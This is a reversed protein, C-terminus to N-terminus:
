RAMRGIKVYLNLQQIAFAQGNINSSVGIAMYQGSGAVPFEVERLSQGGSWQDIGWQMVNWESQGNAGLSTTLSNFQPDFDFGWSISVDSTSSVWLFCTVSKFLKLYNAIDQGLDMWGSVYLFGYSNSNDQYGSYIGIKGGVSPLSSYWVGSLSRCQGRPVFGNWESVRYTGDEMMRLTSFAFAVGTDPFSLLYLAAEPSFVSRVQALNSGQVIALLYDRVNKSINNLPNSKEIVLRRLSQVGTSSLFLIDGGETQQISDRAICGVGVITDTVVMTAPNIGLPSGSGDSYIVIRNQGFIIFQGNYFAMAVVIDNGQPWVSAMDINGGGDGAAWKTADLLASYRITHKDFDVAWVRGSHVVACNGSPLTGSAAVLNAFSTVGDYIIPTIGQQFGIAKGFFNIFQWNNGAPSATGTIDTPTSVGLYLKNGGASIIQTSGDNKVLEFIQELVPTGAIPSSTQNLWGNRAALRGSTDFIANTATTAWDPGLLTTSAQKNLGRSAPVVLSIQELPAGERKAIPM